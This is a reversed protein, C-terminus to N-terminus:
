TNPDSVSLVDVVFRLAGSPYGAPAAEGYAKDAPIDLQVRTGVKLGVLGEDWGKIVNGQGLVFSFPRGATKWSSDFEKGDKFSLGVYNVTVERGASVAEGNGQILTTVKLQTVVGSPAEVAPKSQLAPDFAVPSQSSAASTQAAANGSPRTLWFAALGIVVLVAAGALVNRILRRRQAVAAAQAKAARAAHHRERKTPASQAVPKNM